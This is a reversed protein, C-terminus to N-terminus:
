TLMSAQILLSFFLFCFMCRDRIIRSTQYRLVIVSLNMYLTHCMLWTLVVCVSQVVHFTDYCKGMYPVLINFLDYSHNCFKIEFLVRAGASWNESVICCFFTSEKIEEQYEMEQGHFLFIAHLLSMSYEQVAIIYTTGVGDSITSLMGKMTMFLIFKLCWVYLGWTTRNTSLSFLLRLMLCKIVLCM